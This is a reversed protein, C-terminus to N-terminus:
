TFLSFIYFVLIYKSSSSSDIDLLAQDDIKNEASGFTCDLNSKDNFYSDDDKITNEIDEIKSDDDEIEKIHNDDQSASSWICDNSISEEEYLTKTKDTKIKDSKSKTENKM